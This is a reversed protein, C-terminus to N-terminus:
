STTDDSEDGDWGATSTRASHPIDSPLSWSSEVTAAGWVGQVDWNSKVEEDADQVSAKWAPWNGGGKGLDEEMEEDSPGSSVDGEIGTSGDADSEEWGEYPGEGPTWDPPIFETSTDGEAPWLHSPDAVGGILEISWMNSHTKVVGDVDRKLNLDPSEEAAQLLLEIWGGCMCAIESEFWVDEVRMFAERFEEMKAKVCAAIEALSKPKMSAPNAGHQYVALPQHPEGSLSLERIIRRGKEERVKSDTDSRRRFVAVSSAGGLADDRGWPDADTARGITTREVDYGWEAATEDCWTEFEERTWEFKHDSHRFIRDTRGTPDLFGNRASKPADPSTFRANFTYSPTTVLFYQPHYVGLLMPAYAQFIEPPLHEISCAFWSTLGVTVRRM